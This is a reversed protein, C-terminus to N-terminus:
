IPSSSRQSGLFPGTAQSIGQCIFAPRFPNRPQISESCFSGVMCSMRELGFELGLSFYLGSPTLCIAKGTRMGDSAFASQFGCPKCLGSHHSAPFRNGLGCGASWVAEFSLTMLVYEYILLPALYHM